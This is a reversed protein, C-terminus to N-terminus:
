GELFMMKAARFICELIGAEAIQLERRSPGRGESCVWGYYDSTRRWSGRRVPDAPPYLRDVVAVLEVFKWTERIRSM